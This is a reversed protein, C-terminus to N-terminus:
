QVIQNLNLRNADAHIIHVKSCKSRLYNVLPLDDDIFIHLNLKKIMKEKFLHPQHNHENIVIKMFWHDLHNQKLWEDTRNKLFNYRSSVIFLQHKNMGVLRKILIINEKIPPRLLPHHSLWRIRQEVKTAPFRYALNTKKHDRM